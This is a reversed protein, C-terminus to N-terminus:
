TTEISISTSFLGPAQSEFTVSNGLLHANQYVGGSEATARYRSPSL